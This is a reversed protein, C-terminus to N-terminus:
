ARGRNLLRRYLALYRPAITEPTYDAIMVQGAATLAARLDSDAYLWEIAAALASADGPPVLLGNEGERIIEPIGDVNSAIIPLGFEMADLLISGLGEQLSPFVFLDLAALWNGVDHKFGLFELNDLGRARRKLEAEDEGAGLLLFHMDPHSTSLRRAAEILVQQGKHRMVLAGAHGILFRGAYNERIRRVAVEDRPLHATMSPIIETKISPEFGEMVQRIAASLAVVVEARRYVGRTFFNNKPKNPVRRTILYPQGTLRSALYALQAARTEHAHALDVGRLAGAHRIYPKSVGALDLGPTDALNNLLPSDRRAILTQKTGERALQRILLETQREGGRYGGALNIHCIVIPM